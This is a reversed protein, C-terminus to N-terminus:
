PQLRQRSRIIHDLANEGFGAEAEAKIHHNAAGAFGKAHAAGMGHQVAGGKLYVTGKEKGIGAARRVGTQYAASRRWGSLRGHRHHGLRVGGLKGM